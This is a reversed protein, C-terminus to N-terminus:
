RTGSQQWNANFQGAKIREFVSLQEALERQLRARTAISNACNIQIQLSAISSQIEDLM